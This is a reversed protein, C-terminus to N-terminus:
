RATNLMRNQRRYLAVGGGECVRSFGDLFAPNERARVALMDGGEAREEVLIWGVYPRPDVIAADWVPHNGEHLFDKVDFGAAAM